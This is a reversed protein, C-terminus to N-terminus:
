VELYKSFGKNRIAELKNISDRLEVITEDIITNPRILVEFASVVDQQMITKRKKEIANAKSQEILIKALQELQIQLCLVADKGIRIQENEGIKHVMDKLPSYRVLCKEEDM